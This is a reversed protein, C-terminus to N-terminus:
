RHVWPITNTPTLAGAASLGFAQEFYQQSDHLLVFPKESVPDLITKLRHELRTLDALLKRLNDRYNKSNAPDVAELADVVAAAM